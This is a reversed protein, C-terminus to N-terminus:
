DLNLTDNLNQCSCLERANVRSDLFQLIVIIDFDTTIAKPYLDYKM